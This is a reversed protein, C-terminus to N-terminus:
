SCCVDYLDNDVSFKEVRLSGASSLLENCYLTFLVVKPPVLIYQFEELPNNNPEEDTLEAFFIIGVLPLLEDNNLIDLSALSKIM